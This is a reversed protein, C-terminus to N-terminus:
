GNASTNGFVASIDGSGPRQLDLGTLRDCHQAVKSNCIQGNRCGGNQICISIVQRYGACKRQGAREPVIPGARNAGEGRVGSRNNIIRPRRGSQRGPVGVVM